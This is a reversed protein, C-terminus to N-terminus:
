LIVAILLHRWLGFGRMATNCVSNHACKLTLIYKVLCATVLRKSCDQPAAVEPASALRPIAGPILQALEGEVAELLRLLQECLPRPAAVSRCSGWASAAAVCRSMRRGHAEVYGNLLGKAASDLTRCGRM